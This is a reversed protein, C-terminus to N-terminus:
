SLQSDMTITRLQPPIDSGGLFTKFNIDSHWRLSQSKIPRPYLRAKSLKVPEGPTELPYGSNLLLASSGLKISGGYM